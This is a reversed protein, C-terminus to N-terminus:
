PLAPAGNPECKSVYYSTMYNPKMNPWRHWYGEDLTYAASYEADGFALSVPCVKNNGTYWSGPDYTNDVWAKAVGKQAYGQSAVKRYGENFMWGIYMLGHFGTIVHVGGEAAGKWLDRHEWRISNCASFHMFRAKGGAAPGFLMQDPYVRCNGNEQNQFYAFFGRTPSFGGHGCFLTADATDAGEPTNDRGGAAKAPDMFAGARVQAGQYTSTTWGNQQMGDLWAQCMGPWESRKNAPCDANWDAIAFTRAEDAWAALPLAAACVLTLLRPGFITNM